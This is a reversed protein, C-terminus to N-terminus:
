AKNYSTPTGFDPMALKNSNGNFFNNIAINCRTVKEYPVLFYFHVNDDFHYEIGNNKEITKLTTNM